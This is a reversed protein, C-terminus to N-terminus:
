TTLEGSSIHGKMNEILLSTAKEAEVPRSFHYGQIAHCNLNHLFQMQEATEVGEAIVDLNLKQAMVIIAATIAADNPDNIIDRIFARDIKLTNIPLQKLYGLSSYGTGFDDISFRVGLKKLEGLIDLAADLHEMMISETIELELLDPPLGTEELTNIVTNLLQQRQHQQFQRGSLNVAIRIPMGALQWARAQACATHLVWNGIPVILGTEEALPILEAPPVLGLEPNNWRLLAEIGIIKGTKAEVQPQYHLLFENRELARRLQNELRVHNQAKVNMNATFFQYNNKGLKKAHYMAADANALLGEMERADNPYISIGISASVYLELQAIDFSQSLIDLIKQAVQAADQIHALDPLMVIFEDGGLRAVTDGERLCDLIRQAVAKLLMDGTGHGLTDNINKFNDLDIFMVAAIGQHRHVHAMAQRLRDSFLTRNPLGTLADFHAMYDLNQQARKIEQMERANDLVLSLSHAFSQALLEDDASFPTGDEKDSLYIRGYVRGGHSVPVALLSKMPPHNPPFGASRPDKTMDDLRISINEQIVVGLLGRGEPLQGIRKAEDPSIGTHVFDKLKGTTDLIGIAGYHAQLLKTLAEIGAQLLDIELSTHALVALLARSAEHLESLRASWALVERHEDDALQKLRRTEKLLAHERHLLAQFISQRTIVGAFLNNEDMVPLAGTNERDMISLVEKASSGPAVFHVPRHEVLDAFIWHPHHAIDQAMALGCFRGDKTSEAFVAFVTSAHLAKPRDEELVRTVDPWLCEGVTLPNM